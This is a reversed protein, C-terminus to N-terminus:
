HGRPSQGAVGGSNILSAVRQDALARQRATNFKLHSVIRGDADILLTEPAGWPGWNERGIWHISWPMTDTHLAPIACGAKHLMPAVKPDQEPVINILYMAFKDSQYKKDLASLYPLELVCSECTPFFFNLVVVKGAIKQLTVTEDGSVTHLEFPKLKPLSAPGASQTRTKQSHGKVQAAAPSIQLVLVTLCLLVWRM